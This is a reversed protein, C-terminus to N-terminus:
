TVPQLASDLVESVIIKVLEGLVQLNGEQIPALEDDVQDAGAIAANLADKFPGDALGETIESPEVGGKAIRRGELIAVGMFHAVDRTQTLEAM